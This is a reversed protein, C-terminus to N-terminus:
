VWEVVSQPLLAFLKTRMTDALGFFLNEVSVVAFAGKRTSESFGTLFAGPNNLTAVRLADIGAAGAKGACHIAGKPRLGQATQQGPARLALPL